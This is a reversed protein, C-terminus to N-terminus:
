YLRQRKERERKKEEGQGENHTHTNTSTPQNHTTVNTQRWARSLTGRPSGTHRQVTAATHETARAHAAGIGHLVGVKLTYRARKYLRKNRSFASFMERRRERKENNKTVRPTTRFRQKERSRKEIGKVTTTKHSFDFTRQFNDTHCQSRRRMDLQKREYFQEAKPFHQIVEM